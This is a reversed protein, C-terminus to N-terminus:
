ESRKRDSWPYDALKNTLRLEIFKGINGIVPLTPALLKTGQLTTKPEVLFLDQNKKIDEPDTSVKPHFTKLSTHLRKAEASGKNDSDGVVIMMSIRKIDAVGMASRTTVGKFASVPSLLVLAKVDQGQKYALLPPATLDLASWNLALICGFEAGVVCLANINLEGRNNKEMLFRKCAEVDRWMEEIEARNFKSADLTRTSGDALKQSTSQGHGRLDPVICSHGAAQLSLALADYEGRQGEWGHIMIVPISEKKGLGAYFTARINVGDKTEFNVNEPDPIKAKPAKAQALAGAPILLSSVALSSVALAIACVGGALGSQRM